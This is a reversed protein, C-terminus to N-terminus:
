LATLGASSLPRCLSPRMLAPCGSGWSHGCARCRRLRLGSKDTRQLTRYSQWHLMCAGLTLHWVKLSFIPPARAEAFTQLKLAPAEEYFNKAFDDYETNAHDLAPLPEIKKKDTADAIEAGDYGDADDVARATAYVEEDSGYGSADASAMAQTAAARSANQRRAQEASLLVCHLGGSCNPIPGGLSSAIVQLRQQMQARWSYLTCQHKFTDQLITRM